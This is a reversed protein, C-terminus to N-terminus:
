VLWHRTDPGTGSNKKYNKVYEKSAPYKDEESITEPDSYMFAYMYFQIWSDCSFRKMQEYKEMTKIM